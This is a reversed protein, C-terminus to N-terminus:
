PHQNRSKLRVICEDIRANTLEEIRRKESEEGAYACAGVPTM